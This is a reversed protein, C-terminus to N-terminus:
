CAIVWANGIIVWVILVQVDCCTDLVGLQLNRIVAMIFWFRMILSIWYLFKMIIPVVCIDMLWVTYCLYRSFITFLLLFFLPFHVYLKIWYIQLIWLLFILVSLIDNSAELCSDIVQFFQPFHTKSCFFISPKLKPM